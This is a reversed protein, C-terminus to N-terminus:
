VMEPRYTTHPDHRDDECRYHAIADEGGGVRTMEEDEGARHCYMCILPEQEAEIAMDHLADALATPIVTRVKIRIEWPGLSEDRTFGHEKWFKREKDGFRGFQDLLYRSLIRGVRPWEDCMKGEPVALQYIAMLCPGPETNKDFIEDIKKKDLIM